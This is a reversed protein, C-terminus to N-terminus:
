GGGALGLSLALGVPSWLTLGGAYCAVALRGPVSFETRGLSPDPAGSLMDISDNTELPISANAVAIGAVLPAVTALGIAALAFPFGTAGPLVYVGATTAGAALGGYAALPRALRAATSM